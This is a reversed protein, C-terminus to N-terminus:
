FGWSVKSTPTIRVYALGREHLIEAIGRVEVGRARWPSFSVIDDVVFAVKNNNSIHRCKLTNSLKRGGFYLYQGDFEYTVPVVHPQGDSSV